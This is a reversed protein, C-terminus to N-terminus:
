CTKSEVMFCCGELEIMSNENMLEFINVSYISYALCQDPEPFYLSSCNLLNRIEHYKTGLSSSYIFICAGLYVYRKKCTCVNVYIHLMYLPPHYTSYYFCCLATILM